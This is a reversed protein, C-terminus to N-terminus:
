SIENNRLQFAYIDTFAHKIIESYFGDIDIHLQINVYKSIYFAYILIFIAYLIELYFFM